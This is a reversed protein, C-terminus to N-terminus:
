KKADKDYAALNPPQLPKAPRQLLENAASKGNGSGMAVAALIEDFGGKLPKHIM